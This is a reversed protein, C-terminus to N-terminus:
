RKPVLMRILSDNRFIFHETLAGLAHVGILPLRRGIEGRCKTGEAVAASRTARHNGHGAAKTIRLDVPRCVIQARLQQQEALLSHHAAAPISRDHRRHGPPQLVLVDLRSHGTRVIIPM